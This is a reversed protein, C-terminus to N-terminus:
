RIMCRNAVFSFGLDIGYSIGTWSRVLTGIPSRMRSINVNKRDARPPARRCDTEFLTRAKEAAANRASAALAFGAAPAGVLAAAAPRPDRRKDLRPGACPASLPRAVIERQHGSWRRSRTALSGRAAGHGRGDPARRRHPVGVGAAPRHPIEVRARAAASDGSCPARWTPDTRRIRTGCPCPVHGVRGARPAHRGDLLVAGVRRRRSQVSGAFSVAAAVATVAGLAGVGADPAGAHAMEGRGGVALRPRARAPRALPHLGVPHTEVSGPHQGIAAIADRALRRAGVRALLARAACCRPGDYRSQAVALVPRASRARHPLRSAYTSGAPRGGALRKRPRAVTAFSSDNHYYDCIPVPLVM